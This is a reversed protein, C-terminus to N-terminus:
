SRTLREIKKRISRWKTMLQLRDSAFPSECWVAKGPFLVDRYFKVGDPVRVRYIDLNKADHTPRADSHGEDLSWKSPGPRTQFDIFAFAALIDLAFYVRPPHTRNLRTRGGTSLQLGNARISKRHEKAAVHFILDGEVLRHGTTYRPELVVSLTSTAVFWGHPDFQSNLVAPDIKPEFWVRIADDGQPMLSQIQGQGYTTALFNIMESFSYQSSVFSEM